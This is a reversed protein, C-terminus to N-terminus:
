TWAITALAQEVMALEDPAVEGMGNEAGGGSSGSCGRSDRAAAPRRGLGTQVEM